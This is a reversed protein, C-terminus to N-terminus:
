IEATLINHEIYINYEPQLPARLQVILYKSIQMQDVNRWLDQPQADGLSPEVSLM